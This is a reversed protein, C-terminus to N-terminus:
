KTALVQRNDDIFAQIDDVQSIVQEWQSAYLTIPFRGLGYLSIAGKQSVKLSPVKKLEAQMAKLRKIEAQLEETTKLVEQRTKAM